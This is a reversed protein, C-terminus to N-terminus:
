KNNNKFLYTSKHLFIELILFINFNELIHFDWSQIMYFGRYLVLIHFIELIQLSMMVCLIDYLWWHSSIIINVIKYVIRKRVENIATIGSDYSKHHM